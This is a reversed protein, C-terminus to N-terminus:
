FSSRLPYIPTTKEKQIGRLVSIKREIVIRFAHLPAGCVALLDIILKHRHPAGKGRIYLLPPPPPGVRRHRAGHPTSSGGPTPDGRKRTTSPASPLPLSPSPFPPRGGVWNLNPKLPARGRRPRGRKDGVIAWYPGYVERPTGTVEWYEPIHGFAGPVM